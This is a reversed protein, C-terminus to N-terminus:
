GIIVRNVHLTALLQSIPTRPRSIHRLYLSRHMSRMEENDYFSYDAKCVHRSHTDPLEHDILVPEYGTTNCFVITWEIGALSNGHVSRFRVWNMAHSIVRGMTNNTENYQEFAKDSHSNDDIMMSMQRAVRIAALICCNSTTLIAYLNSRSSDKANEALRSVTPHVTRACHPFSTGWIDLQAHRRQWIARDLSTGSIRRSRM